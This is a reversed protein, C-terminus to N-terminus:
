KIKNKTHLHRQKRIILTLRAVLKRTAQACHIRTSRRTLQMQQPDGKRLEPFLMVAIGNVWPKISDATFIMEQERNFDETFAVGEAKYAPKPDETRPRKALATTM